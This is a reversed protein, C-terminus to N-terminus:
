ARVVRSQGVRGQLNAANPAQTSSLLNMALRHNLPRAESQRRRAEAESISKRVGKEVVYYKTESSM